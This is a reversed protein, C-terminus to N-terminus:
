VKINDIPNCGYKPLNSETFLPIRDTFQLFESFYTRCQKCFACFLPKNEVPIIVYVWDHIIGSESNSIKNM